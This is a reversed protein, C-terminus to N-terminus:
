CKSANNSFEHHKQTISCLYWPLWLWNKEVPTQLTNQCYSVQTFISCCHSECYCSIDATVTKDTNWLCVNWMIPSQQHSCLELLCSGHYWADCDDDTLLSPGYDTINMIHTVHSSSTLLTHCTGGATDKCKWMWIPSYGTKLNFMLKIHLNLAWDKEETCCGCGFQNTVEGVPGLVSPPCIGALSCLVRGTCGGPRRRRWWSGHGHSWVAHHPFQSVGKCIMEPASSCTLVPATSGHPIGHLLLPHQSNWTRKTYRFLFGLSFVSSETLSTLLRCCHTWVSFRRWRSVSM